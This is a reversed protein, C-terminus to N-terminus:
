SVNEILRALMIVMYGCLYVCTCVDECQATVNCLFVPIYVIEQDM